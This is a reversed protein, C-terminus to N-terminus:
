PASPGTRHWLRCSGDRRLVGRHASGGSVEDSDVNRDEAEAMAAVDDGGDGVRPATADEARDGVAGLLEVDVELPDLLLDLPLREADIKQHGLLERARVLTAEIPALQALQEGLLMALPEVLQESAVVHWGRGVVVRQTATHAAHPDVRLAHSREEVHQEGVVSAEDRRRQPRRGRVEDLPGVGGADGDGRQRSRDHMRLAVHAGAGVEDDGLSRLCTTM